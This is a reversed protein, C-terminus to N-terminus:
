LTESRMREVTERIADFDPLKGANDLVEAYRVTGERDIVFAARKAIRDLEMDAVGSIVEL